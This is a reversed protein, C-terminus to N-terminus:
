LIIKGNNIFDDVIEVTSNHELGYYGDPYNIIRVNNKSADTAFEICQRAFKEAPTHAGLINEIINLLHVFDEKDYAEQLANLKETKIISVDKIKTM